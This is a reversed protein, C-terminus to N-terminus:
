EHCLDIVETGEGYVVLGKYRHLLAKVRGRPRKLADIKDSAVGFLTLVQNLGDGVVRYSCSM